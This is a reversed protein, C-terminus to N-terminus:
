FQLLSSQVLLGDAAALIQKDRGNVMLHASRILITAFSPLWLANSREAQHPIMTIALM